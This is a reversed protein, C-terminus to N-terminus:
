AAAEAPVAMAEAEATDATAAQAAEPAMKDATSPATEAAKIGSDLKIKSAEFQGFEKDIEREMRRVMEEITEGDPKQEQKAQLSQNDNKGQTTSGM